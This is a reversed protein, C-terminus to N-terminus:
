SSVMSGILPFPNSADARRDEDRSLDVGRNGRDLREIASELIAQADRWDIAVEGGPYQIAECREAEEIGLAVALRSLWDGGSFRSRVTGSIALHDQARTAAVYFLRKKESQEKRNEMLKIMEFYAPKVNEDAESRVDIALGFEPHATVIDRDRGGAYSADVIWVIPFELGKAKHVTMIRVAGSEEIAAEGERAERFKLDEIRDVIEPLTLRPLARAQEVFKEVNAARRAVHPLMMLTALYGTEELASLLVDSASARGAIQRLRALARRAFAVADMEDEAIALSEDRLADWLPRRALRLRLLTEDSLAFLPSRLAAALRLDDIPSALFGLLNSLDIIEQRDYFGRGATTVYPIGADALAQEYIEFYTSAQFLLAFDGHAAKRLRGKEDSIIEDGAIIEEIRRAILRAEAQRMKGADLKEEADRGQVIFHIEVAPRSHAAERSAKMEQYPTDHRSEVTFISPFVYNVFSVLRHHARFCALLGVERGGSSTFEERADHFVSVDAGRFRYISQKADGIIFVEESRPALPWLIRKQVPSTDQFEDIMLARILGREADNYRRCVEDSTALLRETMEELDNFDVLARRRKLSSFRAQAASCLRALRLAASASLADADNPELRLLTEARVASRLGDLADRMSLFADESPWKRKSGGRLDVSHEIEILTEIMREDEVDERLGSLLTAIQLRVIERKDAPDDARLTLVTAADRQWSERRVLARASERRCGSLHERQFAAISDADLTEMCSIASRAREGQGILARLASRVERSPLHAFIEIDSSCADSRAAESIAEEIAQDLLPAADLEDAVEFAPDIAAEAPHARLISACLSHITGICASDMANRHERWRRREEGSASREIRSLIEKRIRSTMERAAKETFTVAVIDRVRWEPNEELLRLFREVLVRTKGSGAGASVIVRRGRTEVAELQSETWNM